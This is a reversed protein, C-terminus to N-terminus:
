LGYKKAIIYGLIFATTLTITLTKITTQIEEAEM